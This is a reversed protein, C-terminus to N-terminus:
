KSDFTLKDGPTNRTLRLSKVQENVTVHVLNSQDDHLETLIDNFVSITKWKKVGAVEIYFIFADSEKEHGLYNIKQLKGDLTVRFHKQIYASTMQDTTMGNKPELIDLEPQKLDQRLSTEFDDIFVRMMIELANDKQDFEIETVTVHIPHLLLGASLLHFFVAIYNLTVMDNYLLSPKAFLKGIDSFVPSAPLFTVAAASLQRPPLGGCM